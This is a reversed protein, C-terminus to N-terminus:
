KIRVEIKSFYVTSNPDTKNIERTSIEYIDNKNNAIYKIFKTISKNDVATVNFDFVSENNEITIAKIKYRVLDETLDALTKAKLIYNVKKNYIQNLIKKRRELEQQKLAIKKRIKAIEDKLTNIRQELALRKTHILPYEKQLVAKDHELKYAMFINYLPYALSLLLTAVTILILEGSPRKFLPPLRNYITLNPYHEYKYLIDQACLAMLFHLDEIYPENTHLPYDFHFDYAEQALYTHSYEEIGKIYGIDSSIFIKDIIEIENARKAYILVDNIHMFIESFIQMYYQMEDLDEIKLGDKALTKIVSNVDVNEGKLESLRQAIEEFSYKLSKAYLLSGQSYLAFLTDDKQFYIFLHIESRDLIEYSYLSHFLLPLPIIYDIYEIKKVTDAFVEDIIQPETVFLQLKINKEHLPTPIEHYDIKYELAPDLDLEEYAKIEVVDRLNEHSINKSVEITTIITDKTQLYSIYFNKPNFKPNKFSKITNNDCIFFDRNYPDITVYKKYSDQKM